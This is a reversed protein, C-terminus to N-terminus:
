PWCSIKPKAWTASCTRSSSRGMVARLYNQQRQVRDLDGGPLGKRQRVYILAEAGNLHNLGQEFTVGGQSTTEAVRVDVGGLADTIEKFGFFDVAAFHDIRVGTLQEVTQILLTPGGFAYAANIKNLGRGPIPVWSDRPISIFQVQNRPGTIRMIMIVDARDGPPGEADPDRSDSGVLLFTVPDKGSKPDPPAPRTEEEIGVFPNAIQEINGLYRQTFFFFVGVAALGLVLGSILVVILAKQWVRREAKAPRGARRRRRNSRSERYEADSEDADYLSEGAEAEDVSDGAPDQYPDHAGHRSM